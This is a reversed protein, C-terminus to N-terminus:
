IVTNLLALFPALREGTSYYYANLDARDWRLQETTAKPRRTSSSCQSQDVSTVSCTIVALLPLHDSFNVDPDLVCFNDVDNDSSTLIYDIHSIHNLATNVYTPIKAEPFLVDCRTLLRNRLFDNISRTVVDYSDLDANFDGAIVIHSTYM